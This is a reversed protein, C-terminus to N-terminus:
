FYLSHGNLTDKRLQGPLTKLQKELKRATYSFAKMKEATSKELSQFIYEYDGLSQQLRSKFGIKQINTNSEETLHFAKAGKILCPKITSRKGKLSITQNTFTLCHSEGLHLIKSDVSPDICPIEPLLRNLYSLFANNHKRNLISSPQFQIEKSCAIRLANSITSKAEEIRNKQLLIIATSVLSTLSSEAKYETILRASLAYSELASDLENLTEYTHGLSMLTDPNNPKIELSKHTFALAQDLNGLSKHIAGLMSYTDPNDPKLKLSKLTYALAQDLDGLDKYIIGLNMLATPNDPKLEISKLTSALAQDLNGLHINIIGLNMHADPNNSKLEISKHTYILAQELNGLKKYIIGLNMPADPNDPRPKLSKLTYALAQDLDGIYSLHHWLQDLM